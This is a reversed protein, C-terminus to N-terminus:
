ADPAADHGHAPSSPQPVPIRGERGRELLDGPAPGLRGIRRLPWYRFWARAVLAEVPVPGYRRSDVAPGFGGDQLAEDTADGVLWAEDEGLQLWGDAFPVWDGPRAAVRKIALDGTGPERFVVITGRRPWGVVTPDTLLWDGSEIAPLMSGEVVAIRWPGALGARRVAPLHGIGPIRRPGTM